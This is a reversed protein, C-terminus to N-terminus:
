SEKDVGLLCAVDNFRKKRDAYGNQGGNVIQTVDEVTGSDATENLNKTDWFYFASEVGYEINDAILEPKAEFDQIDDPNLANHSDQFGKYNDKGTLQIIGRGRYKYGDGSAEDGNGLRNAYVYNGLHESNYSYYSEDTWLKDRLRGHKCEDAAKIYNKAGGKCGYIEHMRAPSYNLSETTSKLGSEHAVQSLFHAMRQPTNVEYQRAFKNIYGLMAKHSATTGDPDVADLMAVTIFTCDNEDAWDDQGQQNLFCMGPDPCLNRPTACQQTDAADTV